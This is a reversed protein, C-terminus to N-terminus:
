LDELHAAFWRTNYGLTFIILALTSVAHVMLINFDPQFVPAVLVPAMGFIPIAALFSRLVGMAQGEFIFSASWAAAGLVALSLPIYRYLFSVLSHRHKLDAISAILTALGMSAFITALWLTFSVADFDKFITTNENEMFEHLSYFTLPVSALLFLGVRLLTIVWIAGYFSPKSCAAVMPLLAGNRVFYDLVKRHAKLALWLTVVVLFSINLVLIMATNFGSLSIPRRFGDSHLYRKGILHRISDAEKAAEVFHDSIEKPRMALTMVGLGWISFIDSRMKDGDWRIVLDPRCTECLHIRSVNGDFLKKYGEIDVTAPDATQVAVDLRDPECESSPPVEIRRGDAQSEWIWRCIRVPELKGADGYLIKRIINKDQLREYTQEVEKSDRNIVQIAIGTVLLQLYVVLTSLILPFLLLSAFLKPIRVLAFALRFADM